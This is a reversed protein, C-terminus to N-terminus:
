RGADDRQWRYHDGARAIHGWPPFPEHTFVVTAKGATTNFDTRSARAAALDRGPSIWDVHEVECAHHFLDGV